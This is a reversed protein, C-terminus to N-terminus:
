YNLLINYKKEDVDNDHILSSLLSHFLHFTDYGFYSRFKTLDCDNFLSNNEFTKSNFLPKIYKNSKYKEYLLKTINNIKEDDFVKIDFSQLLQVQYLVLSDSYEPILNYTCIFDTKYYLKNQFNNSEKIDKIKKNEEIQNIM